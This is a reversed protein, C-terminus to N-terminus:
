LLLNDDFLALLELDPFEVPTLDDASETRVFSGADAFDDAM